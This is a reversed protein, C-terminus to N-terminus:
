ASLIPSVAASRWSKLGSHEAPTVKNRQDVKNGHCQKCQRDAANDTIDLQVLGGLRWLRFCSRM